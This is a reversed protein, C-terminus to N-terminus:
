CWGVKLFSSRCVQLFPSAAKEMTPIVGVTQKIHLDLILLERSYLLLILHRISKHYAVQLCESLTM